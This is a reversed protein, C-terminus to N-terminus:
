RPPAPLRWKKVPARQAARVIMTFGHQYIVALFTAWDKPAGHARLVALLEQPYINTRRRWVLTVVRYFREWDPGQRWETAECFEVVREDIDAADQLNIPLAWRPPPPGPFRELLFRGVSLLSGPWQIEDESLYPGPPL